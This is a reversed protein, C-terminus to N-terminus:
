ELLKQILDLYQRGMVDSSVKSHAIRACEVQSKRLEPKACLQAIKAALDEPSEPEAYRVSDEDFFAEISRLRSAVVPLGSAAYEFLKTSLALNMFDDSKYPVVGIDSSQIIEYIEELRRL